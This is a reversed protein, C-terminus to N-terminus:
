VKSGYTFYAMFKEFVSPNYQLNRLALRQINKQTPYPLKDLTPRNLYIENQSDDDYYVLNKVGNNDKLNLTNLQFTVYNFRQNTVSVGNVVLPSQLAGDQNTKLKLLNAQAYATGFTMMVLRSIDQENTFSDDNLNIVTHILKNNINSRNDILNPKNLDYVFQEKLDITPFIPYMNIFKYDRTKEIDDNSAIQPLSNKGLIVFNLNQNVSILDGGRNLITELNCNEMVERTLISTPNKQFINANSLRILNSLLIFMQKQHPTGYQKGIIFKPDNPIKLPPCPDRAPNFALAQRLYNKVMEDQSSLDENKISNKVSLPIGKVPQSKTLLCVQDIGAHLKVSNDFMKISTEHYNPNDKITPQPFFSELVPHRRPPIWKPLEQKPLLEPHLPDIIKTNELGKPVRLKPEVMHGHVQYRWKWQRGYPKSYFKLKGAIQIKTVM